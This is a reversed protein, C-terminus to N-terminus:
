FPLVWKPAYGVAEYRLPGMFPAVVDIDIFHLLANSRGMLTSITSVGRRLVRSQESLHDDDRRPWEYSWGWRRGQHTLWLTRPLPPRIAASVLASSSWTLYPMHGSTADARVPIQSIRGAWSRGPNVEFQPFRLTRLKWGFLTSEGSVTKAELSDNIAAACVSKRQTTPLSPYPLWAPSRCLGAKWSVEFLLFSCCSSENGAREEAFCAEVTVWRGREPCGWGSLPCIGSM